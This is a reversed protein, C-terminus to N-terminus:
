GIFYHKPLSILIYQQIKIPPAVRTPIRFHPPMEWAQDDEWLYKSPLLFGWPHHTIPMEWSQWVQSGGIVWGLGTLQGLCRVQDFSRAM